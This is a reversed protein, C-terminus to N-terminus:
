KVAGSGLIRQALVRQAGGDDLGQLGALVARGLSQGPTAGFTDTLDGPTTIEHPRDSPGWDSTGLVAEVGEVADAVAEAAAGVFNAYPGPKAPPAATSWTGPM